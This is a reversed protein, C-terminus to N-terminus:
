GHAPAHKCARRPWLRCLSLGDHPPVAVPSPFGEFIFVWSHWRCSVLSSRRDRASCSASLDLFGSPTACGPTSARHLDSSVAEHASPYVFRVHPRGLQAAPTGPSGQSGASGAVTHSLGGGIPTSVRSTFGVALSASWDRSRSSPTTDHHGRLGAGTFPALSLAPAGFGHRHLSIV